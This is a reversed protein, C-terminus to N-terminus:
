PRCSYRSDVRGRQAPAGTEERMVRTYASRAGKPLILEETRGARVTGIAQQTEGVNAVVDVDRNTRNNVIFTLQGSCQAPNAVTSPQARSCASAALAVLIGVALRMSFLQGDIQPQAM